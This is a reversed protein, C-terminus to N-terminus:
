SKVNVNANKDMNINANLEFPHYPRCCDVLHQGPPTSTQKLVFTNNVLDEIKANKGAIIAGYYQSDKDRQCDVASQIELVTIRHNIPALMCEVKEELKNVQIDTYKTSQCYYLEDKLASVQCYFNPNVGSMHGGGHGGGINGCDGNNNGHGGHGLGFLHGMFPKALAVGGVVLATIAVAKTGKGSVDIPMGSDILQKNLYM